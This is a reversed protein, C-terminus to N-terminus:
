HKDSNVILGEGGVASIVVDQGTLAKVLTTKDSHDVKIVNVESPFTASSNAHSLVSVTFNSDALVDSLIVQGINGSAGVLLVNKYEKVPM